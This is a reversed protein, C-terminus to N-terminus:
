TLALNRVLGFVGAIWCALPIVAALTAYEVLEAARRVALSPMLGLLPILFAAGAVAALAGFWHGHRPATMVTIAFVTAMCIFGSSVLASRRVTGIHTRARLLLTTAIVGGFAAIAVSFEHAYASGSGVLVTGMAAAVAAGVIMGTLMEHALTARVGEVDTPADVGDTDPPAPAIRTLLIAVRPASSLAALALAALLAGSAVADLHWAIAAASTATCLLSTTVIGTLPTSGTGPSGCVCWRSLWHRRRRWCSTHPPHGRPCPSPM